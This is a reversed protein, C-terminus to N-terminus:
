LIRALFAIPALAIDSIADTVIGGCFSVVDTSQGAAADAASTPATEAAAMNIRLFSPSYDM